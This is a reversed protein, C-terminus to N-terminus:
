NLRVMWLIVVEMYFLDWYKRIRLSYVMDMEMGLGNNFVELDLFGIFLFVLFNLSVKFM